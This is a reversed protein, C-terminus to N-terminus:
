KNGHSVIGLQPFAAMNMPVAYDAPQFMYSGDNTAFQQAQATFQDMPIHQSQFTRQMMQADMHPASGQAYHLLMTEPNHHNMYQQQHMM